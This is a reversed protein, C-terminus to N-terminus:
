SRFERLKSLDFIEGRQSKSVSILLLKKKIMIM